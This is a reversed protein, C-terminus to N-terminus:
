YCDCADSYMLPNYLSGINTDIWNGGHKDITGHGTKIVVNENKAVLIDFLNGHVHWCASVHRRGSHTRRHGAKKSDKCRITFAIRNKSIQDPERNFQINDDYEQNLLKIADYLENFSSNKIIM